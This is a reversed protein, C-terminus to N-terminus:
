PLSDLNSTLVLLDIGRLPFLFIKVHWRYNLQGKHTESCGVLVNKSTEVEKWLGPIVVDISQTTDPYERSHSAGSEVFPEPLMEGAIHCDILYAMFNGFAGPTHLVLFDKDM